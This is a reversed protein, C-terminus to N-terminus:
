RRSGRWSERMAVKTVSDPIARLDRDTLRADHCLVECVVQTIEDATTIIGQAEPMAFAAPAGEAVFAKHVQHPQVVPLRTWGGGLPHRSAGVQRRRCRVSNDAPIPM